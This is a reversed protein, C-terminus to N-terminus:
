TPTPTPQLQGLVFGELERCPGRDEATAAAWEDPSAVEVFTHFAPEVDFCLGWDRREVADLDSHTRTCLTVLLEAPAAALPTFRLTSEQRALLEYVERADSEGLKPAFHQFCLVAMEAPDSDHGLTLNERFLWRIPALIQRQALEAKWFDLALEFPPREPARISDFLSM